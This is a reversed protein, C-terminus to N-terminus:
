KCYHLKESVTKMVIQILQVVRSLSSPRLSLSLANASIVLPIFLRGSDEWWQTFVGAVAVCRAVQIWIWIRGKKVELWEQCQQWETDHCDPSFTRREIIGRRVPRTRRGQGGRSLKLHIVSPPPRKHSNHFLAACSLCNSETIDSQWHTVGTVM